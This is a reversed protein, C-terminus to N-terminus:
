LERLGADTARRYFCTEAGTHCAPGTQEILLLLSDGDCDVRLEVLQQTHGSTDGKRWLEGRSRSWYTVRGTTLTQILAARTMWAVMLVRGTDHQQAVATVLGDADFAVTDAIRAAQDRAFPAPTGPDPHGTM